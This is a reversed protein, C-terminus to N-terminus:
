SPRNSPWLVALLASTVLALSFIALLQMALRPAVTTAV